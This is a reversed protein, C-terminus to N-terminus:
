PVTATFLLLASRHAARAQDARSTFAIINQFPWSTLPQPHNAIDALM